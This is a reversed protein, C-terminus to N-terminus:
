LKFIRLQQLFERYPFTEAYVEKGNLFKLEQIRHTLESHEWAAINCTLIVGSSHEKIWRFFTRCDYHPYLVGTAVVLDYKGEPETIGKVGFPMRERAQKSLELGHLEGAPLGLTIFGEGAGIDLARNFHGFKERLLDIIKDKRKKDEPNTKFGWPDPTNYSEEIENFPQM